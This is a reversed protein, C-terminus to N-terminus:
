VTVVNPTIPSAPRRVLLPREVVWYLGFCTLLTVPLFLLSMGFLGIGSFGKSRLFMAIAVVFVLHFLYLTYSFEGLWVAWKHEFLWKMVSRGPLVVMLLLLASATGYLIDRVPLFGDVPEAVRALVVCGILLVPVILRIQRPLTTRSAALAAVSMGTGFEFLRGPLFTRLVFGTELRYHSASGLMFYLGLRYCVTIMTLLLLGRWPGYKRYCIMALPFAAYWTWEVSLSWTVSNWSHISNPFWANLLLLHNLLDWWGNPFCHPEHGRLPTFLGILTVFLLSAYYTPLIRLSRRAIYSRLQLPRNPKDPRLAFPWYLCFGSLVLFLNVAAWGDTLPRLLNMRLVRLEPGGAAGYVHFLVVILAALGRLGDVGSLRQAPRSSVDTRLHLDTPNPAVATM